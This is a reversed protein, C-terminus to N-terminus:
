HGGGAPARLARVIKSLLAAPEVPKVIFDNAGAKLSDRVVAGDSWGSVMIVPISAYRPVARIQLTTQLGDVQPMMVDMLILDTPSNALAKLAEHSSAAFAVRYNGAELIGGVIDRQIDDDDVVLVLPRVRDALAVLSRASDMHPQMDRHLEQAWQTLPALSQQVTHLPQRLGQTKMQAIERGLGAANRVELMDSLEGHALRRSFGDIAADMSAGAQAVVRGATAIHQGGQAMKRDLAAELGALARARTAFEAASPTADRQAALERLAIRLSMPLRGSDHTMPWFQVYDDFHGSRCMEYAQKVEDMVCLTITRIPQRHIATSHRYLGLLYRESKQLADFALVLVQPAHREFDDVATEGGGSTHVADFEDALLRQVLAADGRRDSVVLISTNRVSADHM